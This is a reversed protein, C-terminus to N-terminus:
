NAAAQKFVLMAGDWISELIETGACGRVTMSQMAAMTTRALILPDLDANLEGQEQGAKVQEVLMAEIQGMGVEVERFIEEDYRSVELATNYLMCGRNHERLGGLFHDLMARIGELPSNSSALATRLENVCVGTYRRLAILFLERKNGFTGYLSARNIGTARVLEQIGTGLYGHRWFALMASDLVQEQDFEKPRAM